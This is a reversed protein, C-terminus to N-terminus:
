FLGLHRFGFPAPPQGTASGGAAAFTGSLWDAALLAPDPASGYGWAAAIANGNSFPLTAASIPDAGIALAAIAALLTRSATSTAASVGDALLDRSTDSLALAMLVHPTGDAAEARGSATATAGFTTGDNTAVHQIRNTTNYNISRYGGTAPDGLHMAVKNVAVTSSALVAMWLPYSPAVPSIAVAAYNSATFGGLQPGLPGVSWTPSGVFSLHRGNPSIDNLTTGSGEHLLWYGQCGETGIAGPTWVPSAPKSM